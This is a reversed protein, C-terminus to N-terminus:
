QASDRRLHAAGVVCRRVQRLTAQRERAFREVMEGFRKEDTM